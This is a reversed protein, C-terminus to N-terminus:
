QQVAKELKEFEDLAVWPNGDTIDIIALVQKVAIVVALGVAEDDCGLLQQVRRAIVAGLLVLGLDDVDPDDSM